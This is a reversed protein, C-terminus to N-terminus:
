CSLRPCVDSEIIVDVGRMKEEKRLLRRSSVSYIHQM